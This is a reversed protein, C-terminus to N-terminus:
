QACSTQLTPPAVGAVIIPVDVLLPPTFARHDNTLIELRLVHKGSTASVVMSAGRALMVQKGDLAVYVVRDGGPVEAASGDSFRGCIM